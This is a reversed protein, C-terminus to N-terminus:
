IKKVHDLSIWGAGSKLKGWGAKSGTGAKTEVITFAGVGTFAGTAAYNTGPGKRINLNKINVKVVYPADTKNTSTTKNMLQDVKTQVENYNYGAKTLANKRDAGNGWKGAIVEKAIEEVSKKTSTTTTPAAPTTAVPKKELNLFEILAETVARAYAAQGEPSTIVKYDVTSDMFGGEVLVAPIKNQNIVTFNERKVGRGKLGTYKAMKDHILKALELDKDTANRDVWVEIGTAGNWKGTYANHHLSVLVDVCAKLYANVRASLSEDTKGEDNDVNIIEVDYEKLNAVIRDRVKDNLTWEKIGDPTQKGATYLGHGPDFAIKKTAM